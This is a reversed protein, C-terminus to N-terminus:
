SRKKVVVVRPGESGPVASLKPRPAETQSEAEEPIAGADIEGVRLDADARAGLEASLVPTVLAGRVQASAGLWVREAGDIRGLVIGQVRVERGSVDGVVVAGEEIVVLEGDVRGDIRGRIRVPERAHVRGRVRTRREITSGEGDRM